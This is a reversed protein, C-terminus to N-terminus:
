SQQPLSLVCQPQDRTPATAQDDALVLTSAISLVVTALVLLKATMTTGKPETSGTSDHNHRAAPM